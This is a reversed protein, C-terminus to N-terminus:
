CVEYEHEIITIGPGIALMYTREIEFVLGPCVLILYICHPIYLPKLLTELLLISAHLFVFSLIQISLVREEFLLLCILVRDWFETM